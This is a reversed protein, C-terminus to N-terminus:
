REELYLEVRGRDWSQRVVNFNYMGYFDDVITIEAGICPLGNMTWDGVSVTEQTGDKFTVYLFLDYERNFFCNFEYGANNM